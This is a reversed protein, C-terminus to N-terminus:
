LGDLTITDINEKMFDDYEIVKCLTKLNITEADIVFGGAIYEPCHSQAECIGLVFAQCSQATDPGFVIMGEKDPTRIHKTIKVGYIREPYENWVIKDKIQNLRRLCADTRQRPTTRNM